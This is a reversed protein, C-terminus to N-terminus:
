KKNVKNLDALLKESDINYMACIDGLKLKEMEFRAFPCSLCPLNHKALVKELESDALVEALTTDKAIKAMLNFQWGDEM